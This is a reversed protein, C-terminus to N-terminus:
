REGWQFSFDVSIDPHLSSKVPCSEGIKELQRSLEPDLSRPATFEVRFPGIRRPTGPTMEKHVCVKAGQLDVGMREAALAMVTLVCAGLSAAFLDTPSCKEVDTLIEWGSEQVVSRTSFPKEYLIDIQSMTNGKEVHTYRSVSKIAVEGFWEGEFVLM